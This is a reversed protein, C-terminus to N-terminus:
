YDLELIEINKFEIPHSESQLSIYGEKLPQGIKNKWDGNYDDIDAGGIQPKYYRMVETGNISHTIISDKIAMVELTVWYNGYFTDSTSDICHTTILENDMVVNTGPTCLNGTSRLTGAEIGGLMQVEISLPFAQTLGMSEPSQSHVMIGSNREAWGAGGSVQEGVFRYDVRLKYSSFPKKYFIHGFNNNFTDYDKYSVKMVGNEVRFTNHINENLPYDKIKIIWNDLNKGNFLSVWEKSANTQQNNKTEKKCGFTLLLLLSFLLLSSKEMKIFNFFGM